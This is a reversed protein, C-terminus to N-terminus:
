GMNLCFPTLFCKILGILILIIAAIAQWNDMLTFLNPEGSFLVLPLISGLIGLIIGALVPKLVVYSEM